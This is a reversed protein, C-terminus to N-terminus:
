SKGSELGILQTRQWRGKWMGDCIPLNAYNKALWSVLCGFRQNRVTGNKKLFCSFLFLRLGWKSPAIWHQELNGNGRLHLVQIQSSCNGFTSNSIIEETFFTHGRRSLMRRMRDFKIECESFAFPEILLVFPSCINIIYSTTQLVYPNQFTKLCKRM